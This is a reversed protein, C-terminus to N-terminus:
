LPSIVRVSLAVTLTSAVELRIRDFLMLPAKSKVRIAVPGSVNDPFLALKPLRVISEPVTVALVELLTLGFVRLRSPPVSIVVLPAPVILLVYTVLLEVIVVLPPVVVNLENVPSLAVVSVNVM